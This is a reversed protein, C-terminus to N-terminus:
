ATNMKLRVGVSSLEAVMLRFIYPCVISKIDGGDPCVSCKANEYTPEGDAGRVRKPPSLPPLYSGCKTCVYTDTKDSCTLFRDNLLYGAGHAVLADREMEGFRIGGGHSRGKIPQHTHNDYNGVSRVQFKDSVMHRLRQYHVVGIYIKAEMQNGNVGSYMREKGYYNFGAQQLLRGYNDVMDPQESATFASADCAIGHLASAKGALLEVLMANTMRSPFGHPNFMIDPIMGTETFPLNEASEQLANIGKQGARSAFKDGVMTPRPIWLTIVVKNKQINKGEDGCCVRVSGVYASETSDYKVTYYKDALRYCYYDQKHELKRGIKPLGDDDILDRLRDAESPDRAFVPIPSEKAVVMGGKAPDKLDIFTNKYIYADFLGRQIASKNIVMADEMDYGTYSVIAVVANTGQPFDDMQLRDWHSTRFLPTAPTTLRFMKAELQNTFCHTATGLTQKSMQCQYMNRPSQNCEPLPILSATHSLIASKEIEAHTTLDHREKLDVCIDLHVQEFPGILEVANLQLNNVPRMMRGPAAFLFIGPYQGLNVRPVFVIELTTPLKRGGVKMKRLENVLRAAKEDPVFGLIRGEFVVNMFLRGAALMPYQEVPIVGCKIVVASYMQATNTDIPDSTIQCAKTMHNVLGCTAGDPTHIPCLFGWTDPKLKRVDTTGHHTNQFKAGRHVNCFHAMYRNRNINELMITFGVSQQNSWETSTSVTGSNFFSTIIPAFKTSQNVASKCAGEINFPGDDKKKDRKKDSTSQNVPGDDKKKKDSERRRIFDRVEVLWKETRDKLLNLYVYGPMQVEQMMLCDLDEAACKGQAFLHLKRVMFVLLNFKDADDDLHILIMRKLFGQCVQEDSYLEPIENHKGKRLEAGIYSRVEERSCLRKGQLRLQCMSAFIRGTYGQDETLGSCLQDYIYSDPYNTLAKLILMVPLTQAKWMESYSCTLKMSGDTLYNLTNTTTWLGNRVCRIQVAKATFRSGPRKKFAEKKLAFPYNCKLTSYLRILKKQGKIVFYGGWEQEEEKKKVLQEPTLGYLNCKQSRVMVPIRGLERGYTTIQGNIYINVNVKLMGSYTLAGAVCESPYLGKPNLLEMKSLHIKIKTGSKLSFEVPEVADVLEDLGKSMAVDFSNTHVLGISSLVPNQKTGHPRGFDPHNKYSFSPILPQMACLVQDTSM